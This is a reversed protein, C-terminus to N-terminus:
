IEIEKNQNILPISEMRPSVASDSWNGSGISEASPFDRSDM